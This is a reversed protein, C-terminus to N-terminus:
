CKELFSRQLQSKEHLNSFKIYDKAISCLADTVVVICRSVSSQSDCPLQFGLKSFFLRWLSYHLLSNPTSSIPHTSCIRPKLLYEVIKEHLQIFMTRTIKYCKIFKVDIPNSRDRFVSQNALSNDTNVELPVFCIGHRSFYSYNTQITSRVILKM